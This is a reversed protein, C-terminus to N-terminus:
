AALSQSIIKALDGKGQKSYRKANAQLQRKMQRYMDVKDYSAFDKAGVSEKLQNYVAVQKKVSEVEVESAMRQNHM